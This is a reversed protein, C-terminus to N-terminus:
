RGLSAEAVGWVGGLWLGQPRCKLGAKDSWLAQDKRRELMEGMQLGKHIETMINM